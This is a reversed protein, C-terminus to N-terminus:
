WIGLMMKVDESAHIRPDWRPTWVIKVDVSKVGPLDRLAREVEQHIVPGLPCGPSTLTMTIEVNGDNPEVGYVLGLEIISMRLEPDEVAALRERIMEETLTEIAM